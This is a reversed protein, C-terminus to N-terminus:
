KEKEPPFVVGLLPAQKALRDLVRNRWICIGWGSSFGITVAIIIVIVEQM